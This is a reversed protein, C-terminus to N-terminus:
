VLLGLFAGLAGLAGQFLPFIITLYRHVYVLVGIYACINYNCPELARSCLESETGMMTASCPKASRGNTALVAQGLTLLWMDLPAM